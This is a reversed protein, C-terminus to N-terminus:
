FNLINIERPMDKSKNNISGYILGLDKHIVYELDKKNIDFETGSRKFVVQEGKMSIIQEVEFATSGIPKIINQANVNTFLFFTLSMLLLHRFITKM